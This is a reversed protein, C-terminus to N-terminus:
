DGTRLKKWGDRLEGISKGDFRFGHLLPTDCYNGKCLCGGNYTLKPETGYILKYAEKMGIIETVEAEHESLISTAIAALTPNPDYIVKM